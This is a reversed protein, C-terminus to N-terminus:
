LTEEVDKLAEVAISGIEYAAVSGGLDRTDDENGCYYDSMDGGFDTDYCAPAIDPTYAAIKKLAALVKVYKEELTMM